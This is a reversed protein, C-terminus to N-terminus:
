IGIARRAAALTEDATGSADIRFWDIAGTDYAGQLRVVTADADSADDRRAEVREVLTAEPAELWLGVFRAGSDAAIQAFADRELPRAAVTDVVVSWGAALAARTIRGVLDYVRASAEPTYAEPPLRDLMPIGALLKRLEDSRLHLAGPPRGILPALARALTSKGTGALGGIAVLMPEADAKLSVAANDFARTEAAHILRLLLRDVNVDDM